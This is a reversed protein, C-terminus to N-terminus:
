MFFKEAAEKEGLFNKESFDQYLLPAVLGRFDTARFDSMMDITDQVDDSEASM